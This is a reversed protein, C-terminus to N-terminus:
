KDYSIKLEKHSLAYVLNQIQHISDVRFDMLANNYDVKDDIFELSIEDSYSWLLCRNSSVNLYWGYRKNTNIFEFGFGLLREVTIDVGSVKDVELWVTELENEITLGNNDVAIVTFITGDGNYSVLNGIRLERVDIM